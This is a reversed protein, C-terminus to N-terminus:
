VKIRFRQQVFAAYEERDELNERPISWYGKKVGTLFRSWEQVAFRDLADQSGDDGDETVVGDSVAAITIKDPM